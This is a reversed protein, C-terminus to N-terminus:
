AGLEISQAGSSAEQQEDHIAAEAVAGEEFGGQFADFEQGTSAFVSAQTQGGRGTGAATIGGLDEGGLLHTLVFSTRPLQGLDEVPAQAPLYAM